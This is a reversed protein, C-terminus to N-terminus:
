SHIPTDNPPSAATRGRLKGQHRYKIPADAGPDEFLCQGKDNFCHGVLLGARRWTKVTHYSVDLRKAIQQPTLLGRARLREIRTKLKYSKRIKTVMPRNFRHGAGSVVGKRNLVAAIEGATHDQFLRDIEAVVAAPTQTVMWSRLPLPVHLTQTAGGTFRVQARVDLGKLLTVDAILLRVMRKRERDPTRPDNWLRPFDQALAMISARQQDNLGAREAQRRKEYREQADALARLTENWEAELSDAVLRNDPDVQMFRRRALDSQYRAREVEQGRLRDGEESRTEIEAQVALAVELTLPTVQQILLTSIARDLGEGHIQQCLREGNQIGHRQCMYDPIRRAGRQHYRITMRQGCVGCVALGQLLAPGERPLSKERDTAFANTNDRLRQVNYEFDEWTIYADHADRILAIWEKPALRVFIHRGDPHKRQRSRGFCFAGTYRPHHLVWLVRSHGLETWLVDGKRPGSFIRRPFKLGQERFAKVTATASGTRRFTRFLQHISEQIRADPDIRVRGHGDYVFGVPLRTELEGRRAKNLIGGRL